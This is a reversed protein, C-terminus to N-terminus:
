LNINIDNQCSNIYIRTIDTDINIEYINRNSVSVIERILKRLGQAFSLISAFLADHICALVFINGDILYWVKVYRLREKSLDISVYGIESNIRGRPGSCKRMAM